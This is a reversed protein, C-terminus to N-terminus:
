VDRNDGVTLDANLESLDSGIVEHAAILQPITAYGQELLYAATQSEDSEVLGYSALHAQRLGHVHKSGPVNMSLATGPASTM